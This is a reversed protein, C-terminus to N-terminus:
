KARRQMYHLLHTPHDFIKNAFLETLPTKLINGVKVSDEEYFGQSVIDGQPTILVCSHVYEKYDYLRINRKEKEKCALIKQKIKEVEDEAIIEDLHQRGRGQPTFIIFLHSFLDLDKSLRLLFDVQGKNSNYIFSNLRIKCGAKKLKKINEITKDYVDSQRQANHIDKSGDVSVQVLNAKALWKINEENLLLTNTTVLTNINNKISTDILKELDTRMLPEGGTFDLRNIGLEGLHNIIKVANETSLGYDANCGSSSLCYKCHLNCKTCIQWCVSLPSELRINYTDKKTDYTVVAKTTKIM